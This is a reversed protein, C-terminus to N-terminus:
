RRRKKRPVDADQLWLEERLLPGRFSAVTTKELSAMLGDRQQGWFEHLPCPREDGCETLGLICKLFVGEGDIAKVVDLM